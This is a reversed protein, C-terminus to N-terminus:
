SSSRGEQGPRRLRRRRPKRRLPRFLTAPSPTAPRTRSAASAGGRVTLTYTASTALPSNPQFSATQTASSYTLTGAVASGAPNRVDFTTVTLTAPDIGESFTATIATTVAVNKSGSLPSISLVQPATTDPLLSSAFVIDVWYNTSQFTGSPFATAGYAYVGNGGDAGDQLATLVGNTVGSAFYGVDVAYAGGNTHYSAVYTTNPLVAVPSPLTVQQWGSASESTATTRSLLTGTETWLNVVHVGTNTSGKYFRIATIYGNIATRFKV